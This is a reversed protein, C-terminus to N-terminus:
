LPHATPLSALHFCWHCLGLAGPSLIPPTLVVRVTSSSSSGPSRGEEASLSVSARALFLLLPESLALSLAPSLVSPVGCLARDQWQIATHCGALRTVERLKVCTTSLTLDATLIDLAVCSIPLHEDFNRDRGFLASVRAPLAGEEEGEEGWGIGLETSSPCQGPTLLGRWCTVEWKWTETKEGQNDM